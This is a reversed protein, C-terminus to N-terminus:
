QGASTSSPPALKCNNLVAYFGKEGQQFGVTATFVYSGRKPDKLQYVWWNTVKGPQNSYQACTGDTGDVIPVSQLEYRYDKPDPWAVGIGIRPNEYSLPFAQSLNKPDGCNPFTTAYEANGTCIMVPAGNPWDISGPRSGWDTKCCPQVTVAPWGPPTQYSVSQSKICYNTTCDTQALSPAAPVSGLCLLGGSLALLRQFRTM